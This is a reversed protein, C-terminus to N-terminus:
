HTVGGAAATEGRLELTEALVSVHDNHVEFFGSSIVGSIRQGNEAHYHFEGDELTGVMAAHGPLLQIQGESGNLTVEYAPANELFRRIPSLMTLKLKAM